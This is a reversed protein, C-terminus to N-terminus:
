EELQTSFALSVVLGTRYHPKTMVIRGHKLLGSLALTWLRDFDKHSVFVAPRLKPRDVYVHGVWPTPERGVHTTDTAYLVIEVDRLDGVPETLTGQLELSASGEYTPERKGESATQVSARAVVGTVDISRVMREPPGKHGRTNRAM